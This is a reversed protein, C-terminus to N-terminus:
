TREVKYGDVESPLFRHEAILLILKDIDSTPVPKTRKLQQHPSLTSSSM